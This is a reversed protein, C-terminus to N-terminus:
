HKVAYDALPRLHHSACRYGGNLVVSRRLAPLLDLAVGGARYARVASEDGGALGSRFGEARLSSGSVELVLNNWGILFDAHTVGHLDRLLPTPVLLLAIRHVTVGQDRLGNATLDLFAQLGEARASRQGALLDSRLQEGQTRLDYFAAFHDLDTVTLKGTLLTGERLDGVWAQLGGPTSGPALTLLSDLDFGAGGGISQLINRGAEIDEPNALPHVFRVPRGLLEALDGAAARAAALYRAVGEPARFSEVPVAELGLRELIAWELSHLSVWAERPTQLIQGHHFAVTADRRSVGGWATRTAEDLGEVLSRGLESDSERGLQRNPRELLVVGGTARDRALFFPDRPWPSFPTPSVIYSVQARPERLLERHRAPDTWVVLHRRPAMRRVADLLDHAEATEVLTSPFSFFSAEIPGSHDDAIWVDAARHPLPTPEGSASVLLPIALLTAAFALGTGYASM